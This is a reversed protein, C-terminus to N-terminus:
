RPLPSVTDPRLPKIKESRHCHLTVFMTNRICRETVRKFQQAKENNM